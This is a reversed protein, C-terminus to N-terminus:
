DGKIEIWQEPYIRKFRKLTTAVGNHDYGAFYGNGEAAKSRKKINLTMKFLMLVMKMDVLFSVNEVYWVDNEFQNQYQCQTSDGSKMRPCELGPRIMYRKKHRESMRYTFFEPMPRPGIISMDGKIVSWFNLLEDLSYKRMFKGFKTVREKAPLLKGDADVNNNMNRFKIMVFPKGDKGTRVQKYFIPRGVDFFTCIGFIINFPLTIVFAPIGILLDLCRKVYKTYFNNAPYVEVSNANVKELNRERLFAALREEENSVLKNNEVATIKM